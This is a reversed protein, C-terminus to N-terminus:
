TCYYKEKEYDTKERIIKVIDSLLLGNPSQNYYYGLEVCEKSLQVVNDSITIPVIRM